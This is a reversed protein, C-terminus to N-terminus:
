DTIPGIPPHVGDGNLDFGNHPAKNEISYGMGPGFGFSSHSAAESRKCHCYASPPGAYVTSGAIEPSQDFAAAPGIMSM